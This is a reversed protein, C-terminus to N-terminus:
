PLGALYRIAIDQTLGWSNVEDGGIRYGLNTLVIVTLKDDPFRTYETGTMGTHTIVRHGRVNELEWGFGYPYSTGDNLKAPTWMATLNSENLVKGSALAIEWKALDRVTSIVGYDSPLEDQVVRRINVLRGNLFTYGAARHKLITFHNLVSTSTMGLPTFFQDALFDKYRQGSAKEIIMGLLFYGVDSYQHREGPKFSMPDETASKFSEATLYFTKDPLSALGRGHAAMGGTHTLLHRITIGNWKSPSGPLYQIIPDELKVKGKEVLRMIATATFQKTLSALEFVTEPIVSVDHELNAIGYGQLKVVEGNKIVVLALGPISRKKMEVQIYEDTTAASLAARAPDPSEFKAEEIPVNHRVENVKYTYKYAPLRITFSLKVGDVERYDEYYSEIAIKGKSASEFISDIRVLLGTQAEFYLKVPDGEPPTAEICYATHVDVKVQGLLAMKPYLEKLKIGWYFEADRKEADLGTGSLERFGGDTPNLAWGVRGNFGRSVEFEVGNGLKFRGIEVAKNPAQRYDEFSATVDSDEIVLTSKMVRSTLKRHAAAGGIAQAYRDLIKDVTPM